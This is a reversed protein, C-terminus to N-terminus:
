LAVIPVSFYADKLDISVMHDGPSICNLTIRINEMKFHIKEVFHNLQKLNIVPRLHATKKSVWFLTSIFENDCSPVENIAGKSVLRQFELDNLEKRTTFFPVSQLIESFLYDNFSLVIVQSPRYSGLIM